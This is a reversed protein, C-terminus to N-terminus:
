DSNKRSQDSGHGSDEKEIIEKEVSEEDGDSNDKVDEHGSDEKALSEKEANELSAEVDARAATKEEIVAVAEATKAKNPGSADSLTSGSLPPKTTQQTPSSGMIMALLQGVKFIDQM